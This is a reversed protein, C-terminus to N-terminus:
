YRKIKKLPTKEFETERVKIRYERKHAPAAQNYTDIVPQWGAMM